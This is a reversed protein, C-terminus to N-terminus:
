LKRQQFSLRLQILQIEKQITNCLLSKGTLLNAAELFEEDDELFRSYDFDDM